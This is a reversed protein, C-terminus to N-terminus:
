SDENLLQSLSPKHKQVGKTKRKKDPVVTAARPTGIRERALEKVATVASFPKPKKRNKAL